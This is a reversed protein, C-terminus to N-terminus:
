AVPRGDLRTRRTVLTLGRVEQAERRQAASFTPGLAALLVEVGRAGLERALGLAYTWVGGVADATM